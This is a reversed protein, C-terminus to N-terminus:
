NDPHSRDSLMQHITQALQKLQIPKSIYDNAGSALCRERDGSMALATLAVIPLDVWQPDRRIEQMATLGDMGPMQIDMLILDPHHSQALDIAERGSNAVILRYGKAELYSSITCINADNDEALLILPVTKALSQSLDPDTTLLTSQPQFEAIPTFTPDVCPLDITFCSGVGVESTLGVSGGHLEVIQKVLALGLGTGEYRRNLASDIQIFPQFIHSIHEPAIGIGTDFIAIKVYEQRELRGKDIDLNLSRDIQTSHINVNTIGQIPKPDVILDSHYSAVVTISGGAPTFKVGNNLLNILVQRIRREDVSLQPLNDPIKIELQIHKKLAQQKIFAMSSSCLLAIDTPQVDLEIQGSEIKAVDLIDNILELLHNGSREITNLAKLQRDNISGFVEEQLGETMGLVANLPTRLEHSMNALFEDKLQHSRILEANVLHLQQVLDQQREITGFFAHSLHSIEDQAPPPPDTAIANRDCIALIPQLRHNLDRVFMVVVGALFLGAVLTASMSGWLAPMIVTQYPIAQITVWKSSPVQQYVWYTADSELQGRSKGQALERQIKVWVPKLAVISEVNALKAAQNPDPSYSLIQGEKTLLAYYGTNDVLPTNKGQYLDKIAIDGNMIAITRGQRDRIPGAFTMLPIPYSANIYPKSWFYNNVKIADTYYQLNPYKDVQWLEVLSFRPDTPVKVGRNSQSEEIYPGFWERDILGRPTQMVGYGTILKPRAPMWSLMLKEYIVPSRVGSQHLFNTTAVLSKLFTESSILEADLERVKIDTEATLQSLRSLKLERYFLAGLGGLGILTAVMVASFLRTGISHIGFKRPPKERQESLINNM